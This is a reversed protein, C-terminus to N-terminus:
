TIGCHVAPSPPICPYMFIVVKHRVLQSWLRQTMGQRLSQRSVSRSHLWDFLLCLELILFLRPFLLQPNFFCSPDFTSSGLLARSFLYIRVRCYLGTSPTEAREFINNIRTVASLFDERDLQHIARAHTLHHLAIARM